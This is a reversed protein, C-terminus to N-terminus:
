MTHISFTMSIPFGDGSGHLLRHFLACEFLNSGSCLFPGILLLVLHLTVSPAPLTLIAFLLMGPIALLAMLVITLLVHQFKDAGDNHLHHQLIPHAHVNVCELLMGFLHMCTNEGRWVGEM